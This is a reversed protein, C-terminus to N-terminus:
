ASEEETEVGVAAALKEVASDEEAAPADANKDFSLLDYTVVGAGLLAVGPKSWRWAPMLFRTQRLRGDEVVFYNTVIFHGFKQDESDLIHIIEEKEPGKNWKFVETAYTNM